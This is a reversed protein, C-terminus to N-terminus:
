QRREVTIAEQARQIRTYVYACFCSLSGRWVITRWQRCQYTRVYTISCYRLKSSCSLSGSIRCDPGIEWNEGNWNSVGAPSIERPVLIVSLISSQELVEQTYINIQQDAILVVKNKNKYFLHNYLICTSELMKSLWRPALDVYFSARSGKHRPYSLHVHPILLSRSLARWTVSILQM